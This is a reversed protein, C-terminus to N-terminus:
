LLQIIRKHLQKSWKTAANRWSFEELKLNEYCTSQWKAIAHECLSLVHSSLSDKQSKIFIKAMTIQNTFQLQLTFIQKSCCCLRHSFPALKMLLKTLKIPWQPDSFCIGNRREAMMYPKSCLNIRGHPFLWAINPQFKKPFFDYLTTSMDWWNTPQAWKFFNSIM